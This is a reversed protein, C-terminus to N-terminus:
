AGNKPCSIYIHFFYVPHRNELVTIRHPILSVFCTFLYISITIETYTHSPWIIPLLAQSHQLPLISSKFLQESFTDRLLHGEFLPRFPSCSGAMCLHQPFLGGAFPVCTYFGEPSCACYTQAASFLGLWNPDAKGAMAFPKLELFLTSRICFRFCIHLLEAKSFFESAARHLSSLVLVLISVSLGHLLSNFYNLHSIITIQVLVTATFLSSTQFSDSYRIAFFKKSIRCIYSFVFCFIM